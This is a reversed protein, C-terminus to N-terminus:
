GACSVSSVIRYRGNNKAWYLSADAATEIGNLEGALEIGIFVLDARHGEFLATAAEGTAV